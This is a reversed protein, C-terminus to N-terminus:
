FTKATFISKDLMGYSTFSTRLTLYIALSVTIATGSFIAIMIAIQYKIATVPDAGGMIAGTMMGPLSVVGMTAMTAVTPMLSDKLADRFFPHIAEHLRAGCALAHLFYKERKMISDYFSKIGVIDARLCNGLIMGAIPIVYRADMVPTPRIIIYLFILLPILTGLFLSLSLPVFFSNARFGCGRVISVDAVFVMVAVWLLNIWPNNWTFVFQLYFGIFLLQLTMRVISVITTGVMPVGYWLFVSLPIILLAYGAALQWYTIPIVSPM